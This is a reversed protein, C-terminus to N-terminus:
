FKLKFINKKNWLDCLSLPDENCLTDIRIADFIIKKDNKYLPRSKLLFQISNKTMPYSNSGKLKQELEKLIQIFTM